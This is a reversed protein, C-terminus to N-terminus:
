EEQLKLGFGIASSDPLRRSAARAKMLQTVPPCSGDLVYDSVGRAELWILQAAYFLKVGPPNCRVLYQCGFERALKSFQGM